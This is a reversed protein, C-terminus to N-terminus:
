DPAATSRVYKLATGVLRGTNGFQTKDPTQHRERHEERTKRMRVKGGSQGEDFRWYGFVADEERRTGIYKKVDVWESDDDSSDDWNKGEGAETPRVAGAWEWAFKLGLNKM